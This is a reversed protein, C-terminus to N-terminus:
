RFVFAHRESDFDVTLVQAPALTLEAANAYDFGDARASDRLAASLVHRGAPVAFRRYVTASGDRSLGAPQVVQSHVLQGDVRLEVTVPLRERPCIRPQRLQQPLAALEEPTRMRCEGKPQGPHSFSLKLVAQDAGLSRYTPGNAFAGVCLMLAGLTAAQGSWRLVTPSRRAPGAAAPGGTLETRFAAIQAQVTATDGPAVWLTRVRERPVRDRLYPDRTGDLRAQTWEAGLRYDCDGNRCGVVLVGDVHGRTILFDVFSPPLQAACTLTVAAGSLGAVDIARECGYVVVRGSGTLNKVAAMTEARLHDLSYDPLDIATVLEQVNRFPTATPCAGVCIGCSICLSPDVEANRPLHRGDTRPVMRVAEFPCDAACRGCGNCLDLSVVAAPLRKQPPLWPAAAVLLGAGGALLWAPGPKLMDVAPYGALFFWDLNLVAPLVALDAPAHSTAPQWLSFILMVALIGIALARRPTIDPRSVRQIHLWLTLLMLLPLMIHLFVLLSFFRDSISGRTLFNRAMPEKFIPLWDFWESTILAIYHALQDWVLWYGNIGTVILLLLVIAGTVWAFARVGRYRDLVMERALHLLAVVVMADSAYRHFSRLIGGAFWQEHTLAEVSGYAGEVSTEFFVYLYIGSAVVIWFLFFGIAGLHQLPNCGAPFFRDLASEIRFLAQAARRLRAPSSAARAAGDSPGLRPVIGEVTSDTM